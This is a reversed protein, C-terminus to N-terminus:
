YTHSMLYAIQRSNEGTVCLQHCCVPMESINTASCIKANIGAKPMRSSRERRRRRQNTSPALPAPSGKDWPHSIRSSCAPSPQDQNPEYEAKSCLILILTWSADRIGMRLSPVPLLRALGLSLNQKKESDGCCVSWAVAKTCPKEKIM